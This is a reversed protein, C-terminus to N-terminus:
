SSLSDSCATTCSVQPTNGYTGDCVGPRLGQEGLCKNGTSYVIGAQVYRYECEEEAVNPDGINKCVIDYKTWPSGETCADGCGGSNGVSPGNACWDPASGVCWGNAGTCLPLGEEDIPYSYAFKGFALFCVVFVFIFIIRQTKPSIM